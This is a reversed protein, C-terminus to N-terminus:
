SPRKGVRGGLKKRKADFSRKSIAKPEAVVLAWIYATLACLIIYLPWHEVFIDLLKNYSNVLKEYNKPSRKAYETKDAAQIISFLGALGAPLVLLHKWFITGFSRLM